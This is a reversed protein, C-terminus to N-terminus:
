FPFPNQCFDLILRRVSRPICRGAECLPKLEERLSDCSSIETINEEAALYTTEGLAVIVLLSVMLSRRTVLRTYRARIASEFSARINRALFKAMGQANLQLQAPIM